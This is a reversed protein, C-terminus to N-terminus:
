DTTKYPHSAPSITMFWVTLAFVVVVVSTWVALVLWPNAM